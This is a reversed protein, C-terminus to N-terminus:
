KLFALFHRKKNFPQKFYIHWQFCAYLNKKELSLELSRNSKSNVILSCNSLQFFSETCEGRKCWLGFSHM